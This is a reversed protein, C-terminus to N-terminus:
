PRPSSATAPSTIYIDVKAQGRLENVLKALEQDTKQRKLFETLEARAEDLTAVGAPKKDTVKIIHFGFQTRVVDSIGGVPLSFAVEEYEPAFQGKPVLGVDGGQSVSAPDMSNEKALKAFDEGQKVRALIAATRQKAAEVQEPAADAKVLILIHSTRVLDPHRFEEKHQDYYQSLEAPTVTIKKAVTEQIFKAVTMSKELERNLSARDLGRNALAVNMEADGGFNKELKAFEAQVEPESAKMGGAVAKQYVLETGVLAGLAQRILEQQYDARLSNWKPNGIPVLEANIRQELDKGTIARGNM